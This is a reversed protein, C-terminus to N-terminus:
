LTLEATVRVTTQAKEQYELTLHGPLVFVTSHALQILLLALPFGFLSGLLVFFYALSCLPFPFPDHVVLSNDTLAFRTQPLVLSCFQVMDSVDDDGIPTLDPPIVFLKDMTLETWEPPPVDKMVRDDKRLWSFNLGALM